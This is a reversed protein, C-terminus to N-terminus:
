RVLLVLGAILDALGIILLTWILVVQIGKNLFLDPSFVNFFALAFTGLMIMGVMIMFGGIAAIAKGITRRSGELQSGRARSAPGVGCLM